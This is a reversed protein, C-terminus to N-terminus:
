TSGSEPPSNKHSANRLSTKRKLHNIAAHEETHTDTHMETNQCSQMRTLRCTQMVNADHFMQFTYCCFLVFVALKLFLSQEQFCFHLCHPCLSCLPSSVSKINMVMLSFTRLQLPPSSFSLLFVRLEGLSLQLGLWLGCLWLIIVPSEGWSSLRHGGFKLNLSSSGYLAFTRIWMSCEWGNFVKDFVVQNGVSVALTPCSEWKYQGGAEQCDALSLTLSGKIYGGLGQSHPWDMESTHMRYTRVHPAVSPPTCIPPNGQLHWNAALPILMLWLLVPPTSKTIGKISKRTADGANWWHIRLKHSDM